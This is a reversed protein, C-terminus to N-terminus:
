LAQVQVLRMRWALALGQPMKLVLLSVPESSQRQDSDPQLWYSGLLPQDLVM